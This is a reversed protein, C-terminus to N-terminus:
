QDKTAIQRKYLMKPDNARENHEQRTARLEIQEVFLEDGATPARRTARAMKRSEHKWLGLIDDLRKHVLTNNVKMFSSLLLMLERSSM